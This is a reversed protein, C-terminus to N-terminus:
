LGLLKENPEEGRRCPPLVMLKKIFSYMKKLGEKRDPSKKGRTWLKEESFINQREPVLLPKTPRGGRRVCVKVFIHIENM